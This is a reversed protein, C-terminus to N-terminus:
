CARGSLEQEIVNLLPSRMEENLSGGMFGQWVAM